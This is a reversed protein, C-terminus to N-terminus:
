GRENECPPCMIWARLRGSVMRVESTQAAASATAVSAAGRAARACLQGESVGSRQLSPLKQQAVSYVPQQELWAHPQQGGSALQQSSFPQQAAHPEEVGGGDVPV